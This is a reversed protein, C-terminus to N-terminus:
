LGLISYVDQGCLNDFYHKLPFSEDILRQRQDPNLHYRTTIDEIRADLSMVNTGNSFKDALQILRDYDDYQINKLKEKVWKLDEIPYGFTDIDFDINSFTHTLCIRAVDPYGLFMMEEYGVRAHFVGTKGEHEKRGYDHLLGLVYAKESNLYPTKAAIKQAHEAVMESHFFYPAPDLGYKCVLESAGQQLLLRAQEITPYGKIM